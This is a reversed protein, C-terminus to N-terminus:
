STLILPFRVFLVNNDVYSKFANIWKTVQAPFVLTEQLSALKFRM